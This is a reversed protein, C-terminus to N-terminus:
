LQMKAHLSHSAGTSRAQHSRSHTHGARGTNSPCCGGKRLAQTWGEGADSLQNDDGLVDGDWTFDGLVSSAFHM